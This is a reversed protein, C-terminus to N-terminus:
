SNKCCMSLGIGLYAVSMHAIKFGNENGLQFNPLVVRSIVLGSFIILTMSLLLLVNLVYSFRTRVPLSRDFLRRTVKQVFRWNLIIHVAFAFGIAIGAIEHFALGGLVRTNYLLAFTIGMLLDLTLKVYSKKNKM